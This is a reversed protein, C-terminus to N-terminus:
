PDGPGPKGSRCLRHRPRLSRHRLHSAEEPGGQLRRHGQRFRGQASLCLGRSDLFIPDLPSLSLAKNCDVLAREVHGLIALSYCRDQYTPAYAPDLRIAVNYDEVAREFAGKGFYALGRDAYAHSHDPKLEIAIDYDQIARDYDEEATYANGRHYFAWAIQPRANPWTAIVQNCAQIEVTRSAKM